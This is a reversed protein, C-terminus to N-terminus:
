PMTITCSSISLNGGAVLSTDDLVMATGSTGCLGQVHYTGGSAKIRFFSATGSNNISADDTITNFTLVKGSAAPAATASLPCEALLTNGSLAADVNAPPTGSYIDIQGSDLLDSLYDLMGNGAAGGISLTTSM